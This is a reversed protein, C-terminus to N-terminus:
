GTSLQFVEDAYFLHNDRQHPQRQYLDGSATCPPALFPFPIGCPGIWLFVVVGLYGGGNGVRWDGRAGGGENELKAVDQEEESRQREKAAPSRVRLDCAAIEHNDSDGVDAM